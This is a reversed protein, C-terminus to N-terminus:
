KRINQLLLSKCNITDCGQLSFKGPKLNMKEYILVSAKKGIDFNAVENYVGLNLETLSVYTTRQTIQSWKPYETIVNVYIPHNKSGGREGRTQVQKSKLGGGGLSREIKHKLM